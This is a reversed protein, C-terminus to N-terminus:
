SLPQEMQGRQQIMRKKHEEVHQFTGPSKKLGKTRWGRGWESGLYEMWNRLKLNYIINIVRLVFCFM